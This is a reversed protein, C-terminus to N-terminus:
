ATANLPIEAGASANRAASAPPNREGALDDAFRVVMEPEAATGDGLETSRLAHPMSRAADAM